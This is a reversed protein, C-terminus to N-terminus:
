GMRKTIVSDDERFCICLDDLEMSGSAKVEYFSTGQEKCYKECEEDSAVSLSISYM